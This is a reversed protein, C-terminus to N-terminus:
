QRELKERTYIQQARTLIKKRGTIDILAALPFDLGILNPSWVPVQLSLHGIFHM